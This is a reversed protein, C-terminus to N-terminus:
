PAGDKVITMPGLDNQHFVVRMQMVVANREAVDIAHDAVWRASLGRMYPDKETLMSQLCSLLMARMRDSEDVFTRNDETLSRMFRAERASELEQLYYTDTV